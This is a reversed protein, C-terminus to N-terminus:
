HVFRCRGCPINPGRKSEAPEHHAPLGRRVRRTSHHLKSVGEYLQSVTASQDLLAAAIRNLPECGEDDVPFLLDVLDGVDLEAAGQMREKLEAYATVLRKVGTLREEGSLIRELAERPSRDSAVCHDRLKRYQGPLHSKSEKGLWWRLAPRDEPDALLALLAMGEQAGAEELAEERFFSHAAISDGVLQDRLRYALKRRPSLVLIDNPSFGRDDVMHRVYASIGEIEEQPNRWQVITVDGESNENRERLRRDASPLYNKSILHEAM